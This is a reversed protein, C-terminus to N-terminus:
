SLNVKQLRERSPTSHHAKSVTAWFFFRRLEKSNRSLRRFLREVRRSYFVIGLDQGPREHRLRSGLRSILGHRL